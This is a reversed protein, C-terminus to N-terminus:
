SMAGELLSEQGLGGGAQCGEGEGRAKRVYDLSWRRGGIGWSQRM